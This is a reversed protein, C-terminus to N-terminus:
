KVAICRLGVAVFPLNRSTWYDDFQGDEFARNVPQQGDSDGKCDNQYRCKRDPSSQKRQCRQIPKKRRM